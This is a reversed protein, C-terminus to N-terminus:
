VNIPQSAQEQLSQKSVTIKKLIDIKSKMLNLNIINSNHILKGGFFDNKRIIQFVFLLKAIKLEGLFIIFISIILIFSM